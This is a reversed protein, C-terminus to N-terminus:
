PPPEIIYFDHVQLESDLLELCDPTGMQLQMYFEAPGPEADSPITMPEEEEDLFEWCMSHQGRPLLTPEMVIPTMWGTQYPLHYAASYNEKTKVCWPADAFPGTLYFSLHYHIEENPSFSDKRVNDLDSTWIEM